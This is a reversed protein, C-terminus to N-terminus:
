AVHKALVKDLEEAQARAEEDATKMARATFTRARVAETKALAMAMALNAQPHDPSAALVPTLIRVAQEDEEHELHFMALDCAPGPATPDRQLAEKLLAVSAAREGKADLVLALGHLVEVSDPAQKRAEELLRQAEATNGANLQDIGQRYLDSGM